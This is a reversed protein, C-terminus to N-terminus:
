DYYGSHIYVCPVGEDRFMAVNRRDDEFSLVLRLRGEATGPGLARKFERAATYDGFDRMVLLDWRLGYRHLWALTQPQVRAPRATLLVIVLGPDLLGLLRAVEEILPITAARRSSPTGTGGRGRSTTSAAPPTPSCGTSTSCWPRARVAGTRGALALQRMSAAPIRM